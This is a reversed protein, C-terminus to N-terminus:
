ILRFFKVIAWIIGGASGVPILFKAVRMIVKFFGSTETFLEIMENTGDEIRKLRLNQANIALTQEENNEAVEKRLADIKGNVTEKVIPPLHELISDRVAIEIQNKIDESM